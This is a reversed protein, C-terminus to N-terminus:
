LMVLSIHPRLRTFAPPCRVSCQVASCTYNLVVCVQLATDTITMLGATNLCASEVQSGYPIISYCRSLQKKYAVDNDGKSVRLVYRGECGGGRCM